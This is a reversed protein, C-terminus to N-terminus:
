QQQTSGAAAQLVSDFTVCGHPGLENGCIDLDQLGAHELKQLLM